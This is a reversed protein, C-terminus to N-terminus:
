NDSKLKRLCVSIIVHVCLNELSDNLLDKKKNLVSHAM